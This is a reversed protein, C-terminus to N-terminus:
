SSVCISEAGGIACLNGTWHLWLAFADYPVMRLSRLAAEPEHVGWRDGEGLVISQLCSEDWILEYFHRSVKHFGASPFDFIFSGLSRLKCNVEIGLEERLERVLACSTLEGGEIAGGFFGWHDPFFINQKSDRLQLLYRGDPLCVIAVAAAGPELPASPRLSVRGGQPDNSM